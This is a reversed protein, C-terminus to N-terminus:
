TSSSRERSQSGHPNVVRNTSAATGPRVSARGALRCILGIIKDGIAQIHHDIVVPDPLGAPDFNGDVKTTVVVEDDRNAVDVVQLTVQADFIERDSWDKIERVTDASADKIQQVHHPVFQLRHPDVHGDNIFGKTKKPCRCPDNTNVLGRQNSMFRYRDRRVRALCQRFNDATIELIEGGGTDSAGLIEGLTFILAEIAGNDKPQFCSHGIGQVCWILSHSLV